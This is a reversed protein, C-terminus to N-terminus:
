LYVRTEKSKLKIDRKKIDVKAKILSHKPFDKTKSEKSECTEIPIKKDSNTFKFYDKLKSEGFPSLFLNVDQHDHIVSNM